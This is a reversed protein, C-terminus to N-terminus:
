NSDTKLIAAASRSSRDPVSSAATLFEGLSEGVIQHGKPRLHGDQPWYLDEGPHKDFVSKMDLFPIGEDRCFSSLRDNLYTGAPPDKFYIGVHPPYKKLSLQAEHPILVIMFKAGVREVEQRLKRVYFLTRSLLEERFSVNQFLPSREDIIFFQNEDNFEDRSCMVTQERTKKLSKDIMRNLFEALRSNRLLWERSRFWVNREDPVQNHRRFYKSLALPLGEKDLVGMAAAKHDEFVDNAYMQLVVIDPKLSALEKRFYQFEAIPSYGSVGANMVHVPRAPPPRRENLTKEFISCYNERWLVQLAETFSDGMMVIKLANSALFPAEQGIFGHSDTTNAVNGGNFNYVFRNHPTHKYGRYIDSVWIPRGKIAVFARVAIEGMALSLFAILVWSILGFIFKKM